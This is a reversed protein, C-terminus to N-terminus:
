LEVDLRTQFGDLPRALFYGQVYDVGLQQVTRLEERTEIGEAIVEAGINRAMVCFARMIDQKVTSQDIHRVMHMHSGATMFRGSDLCRM